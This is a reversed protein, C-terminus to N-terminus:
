RMKLLFNQRWCGHPAPSAATYQWDIVFAYQPKRAPLLEGDISAPPATCRVYEDDARSSLERGHPSAPMAFFDTVFGIIFERHRGRV